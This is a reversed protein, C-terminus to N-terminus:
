DDGMWNWFNHPVKKRVVEELNIAKMGTCKERILQLIHDKENGGLEKILLSLNKSDVTYNWEYENFDSGFIKSVGSGLDHGNIILDGNSKLSAGLYRIGDSDKSDRLVVDDNM